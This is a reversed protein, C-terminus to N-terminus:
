KSTNTAPCTAAVRTIRKVTIKALDSDSGKPAAASANASPPDPAAAASASPGSTTGIVRVQSNLVPKVQDASANIELAYRQAKADKDSEPKANDLIYVNASSGQVLCGTLTMEDPSSQQNSQSPEAGQQQPAPSPSPTPSQSEQAAVLTGAVVLSAFVGFLNRPM